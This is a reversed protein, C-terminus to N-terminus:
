RLMYVCSPTCDISIWTVIWVVSNTHVVIVILGCMFKSLETILLLSNGGVVDSVGLSHFPTILPM